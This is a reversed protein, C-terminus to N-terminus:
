TVPYDTFIDSVTKTLLAGFAKATVKFITFTRKLKFQPHLNPLVSVNFYHKELYLKKRLIM